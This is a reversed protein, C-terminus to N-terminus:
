EVVGVVGAAALLGGMLEGSLSVVEGVVLVSPPGLGARAACAAIDGLRGTVHRQSPMTAAMIVAAPTGPDWGARLMQRSLAGLRASGMLVVVTDGRLRDWGPEREPDREHGTVIVVSTSLGRHTLPICAAAPGALASSIGPVAECPIGLALLAQLEESGRGFVFPDGGKLRVVVMRQRACAAMREAVDILDRRGDGARHGVNFLEAGTPARALVEESVLQDHFVADAEALVAAARLTLLEPDGPGAGVIYM